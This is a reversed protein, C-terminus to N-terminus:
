WNAELLDKVTESACAVYVAWRDPESQDLKRIKIEPREEAMQEFRHWDAPNITLTALHPHTTPLKIAAEDDKNM